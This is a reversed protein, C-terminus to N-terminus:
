IMATNIPDIARYSQSKFNEKVAYEVCKQRTDALEKMKKEIFGKEIRPELRRNNGLEILEDSAKEAYELCGQM